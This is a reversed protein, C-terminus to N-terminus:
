VWALVLGGPLPKTVLQLKIDGEKKTLDYRNGPLDKWKAKEEFHKARLAEQEDKDVIISQDPSRM